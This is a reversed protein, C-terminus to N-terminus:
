SGNYTEKLIAVERCEPARTDAGALEIPSM